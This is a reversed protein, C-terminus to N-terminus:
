PTPRRPADGNRPRPAFPPQDAEDTSSNRRERQRNMLDQRQNMDPEGDEGVQRGRRNKGRHHNSRSQRRLDRMVALQQLTLVRRLKLETVARHKVMEAQIAAVERALGEVVQDDVSDAYISTDLARRAQRLRQTLARSEDESQRRISVIQARQEPSLNLRAAWRAQADAPRAGEDQATTAAAATGTPADGSGTVIQANVRLTFSFLSLLTLALWFAAFTLRDAVGRTSILDRRYTNDTLM